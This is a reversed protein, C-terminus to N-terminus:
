ENIAEKLSKGSFFEEVEKRDFITLGKTIKIPTIFGLKSYNWCTSLGIGFEKAIQRARMRQPLTTSTM